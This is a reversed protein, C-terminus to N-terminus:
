FEVGEMIKDFENVLPKRIKRSAFKRQDISSSKEILYQVSQVMHSKDKTQYLKFIYLICSLVNFDMRKELFQPVEETLINFDEMLEKTVEIISKQTKVYSANSNFYFYKICRSLDQMPIISQNRGILGKINSRPDENLRTSVTNAPDNTNYTDSDIKSMKTKQDEQFTFNQVKDDYFNTIRLEMTLNFDEDKESLKGIAIYRHYGDSINFYKLKRIILQKKEEDYYFDSEVDPPINFTLTNPIYQNNEMLTSISEVASNNVKIKYYEKNGRVIRQMARQTDVDYHIFQARRFKIIDKVSITGIWQDNAVQLMDFVLPFRIDDICYVSKSFHEIEIPTFYENVKPKKLNRLIDYSNLIAFLVFESVEEISKRSSIIDSIEGRPIKFNEYCLDCLKLCKETDFLIRSNKDSILQELESREKLM